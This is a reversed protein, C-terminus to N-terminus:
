NKVYMAMFTGLPNESIWAKLALMINLATYDKGTSFFDDPNVKWVIHYKM